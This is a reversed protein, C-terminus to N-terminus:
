ASCEAMRFGVSVSGTRAWRKYTRRRLYSDDKNWGAGFVPFSGSQWAKGGIKSQNPLCWEAVNGFLNRAISDYDKVPGGVANIVNSSMASPGELTDCIGYSNAANPFTKLDPWGIDDAFSLMEDVTPLRGGFYACCRQAGLASFGTAPRSEDEPRHVWSGDVFRIHLDPNFPNFLRYEDVEEPENGAANLFQAAMKVTVPTLALSSTKIVANHFPLREVLQVPRTPQNGRFTSYPSIGTITHRRLIATHQFDSIDLDLFEMVSELTKTPDSVLNSYDIELYNFLHRHERWLKRRLIYLQEVLQRAAKTKNLAQRAAVRILPNSHNKYRRPLKWRDALDNNIHSNVTNTGNRSIFIIRVGPLWKALLPLKGFLTTEKFGRRGAGELLWTKLDGLFTHARRGALADAADGTEELDEALFSRTHLSLPEIQVEVAPHAKILASLYNTGSRPAGLIVFPCGEM